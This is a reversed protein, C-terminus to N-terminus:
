VVHSKYASDGEFIFPHILSHPVSLLGLGIM